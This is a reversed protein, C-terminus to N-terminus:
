APPNALLRAVEALLADASAPKRLLTDCGSAVAWALDSPAAHATYVLVPLWRTVRDRKLVGVLCPRGSAALYLETVVLAV